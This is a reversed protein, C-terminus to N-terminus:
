WYNVTEELKVIGYIQIHKEYMQRYIIVITLQFQTSIEIEQVNPTSSIGSANMSLNPSNLRNFHGSCDMMRDPCTFM